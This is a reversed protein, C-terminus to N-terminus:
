HELVPATRLSKAEEEALTVSWKLWDGALRPDNRAIKVSAREFGREESRLCHVLLRLGDRLAAAAGEQEEAGLLGVLRAPAKAASAAHITTYVTMGIRVADLAARAVARTRIEGLFVVDASRRVVNRMAHAYHYDASALPNEPSRLDWPLEHQWVFGKADDAALEYEVPSEYSVVLVRRRRMLESIVAALATSKGTGPIGSAVVLGGKPLWKDVDVIGLEEPRPPRQPLRRMTLCLDRPRSAHLEPADVVDGVTADSPACASLNCRWAVGACVARFDMDSGGQAKVGITTQGSLVMALTEIDRSYVIEEGPVSELRGGPLRWVPAIASRLFLDAARQEAARKVTEM